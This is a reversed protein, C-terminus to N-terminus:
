AYLSIRGEEQVQVEQETVEALLAAARRAPAREERPGGRGDDAGAFLQVGSNLGRQALADVLEPVKASLFKGAASNEVELSINLDGGRIAMEVRVKGLGPENIELNLKGKGASELRDAALALKEVSAACLGSGGAEATKAARSFFRLEDAAAAPGAGSVTFSKIEKKEPSIEGAQAPAAAPAAATEAAAAQAARNQPQPANRGSETGRAAPSNHGPQAAPASRATLFQAAPKEAAKLEGSEGAAEKTGSSKLEKVAAAADKEPAAATLFSYDAREAAAAPPNAASVPLSEAPASSINERRGAAAATFETFVPAAEPETKAFAAQVAAGAPSITVAAGPALGAPAAENDCGEAGAAAPAAPVAPVAALLASFIMEASGALVAEAAASTETEEKLAPAAEIEANAAEPAAPLAAPQFFALGAVLAMVAAAEQGDAKEQGAAPAAAAGAAEEEGAAASEGAAAAEGEAAGAALGSLVVGLIRSFIDGGQAKEAPQLGGSNVAVAEIVADIM